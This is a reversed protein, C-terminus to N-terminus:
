RQESRFGMRKKKAPPPRGGHVGGGRWVGRLGLAGRRRGEAPDGGDLDPVPEGADAGLDEEVGVFTRRFKPIHFTGFHAFLLLLLLIFLLIITIIIMIFVFIMRIAGFDRGWHKEAASRRTLVPLSHTPTPNSERIRDHLESGKFGHFTSRYVKFGDIHLPTHLM